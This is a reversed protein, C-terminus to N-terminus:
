SMAAVTVGAGDAALQAPIRPATVPTTGHGRAGLGAGIRPQNGRDVQKAHTMLGTIPMGPLVLRGASRQM